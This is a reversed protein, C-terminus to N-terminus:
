NQPMSEDDRRCPEQIGVRDQPTRSDAVPSKSINSQTTSTQLQIKTSEAKLLNWADKEISKLEQPFFVRNLQISNGSIARLKHDFGNWDKYLEKKREKDKIKQRQKNRKNRGIRPGLSMNTMFTADVLSLNTGETLMISVTETKEDCASTLRTSVESKLETTNTSGKPLGHVFQSYNPQAKVELLEEVPGHIDAAKYFTAVAQDVQHSEM